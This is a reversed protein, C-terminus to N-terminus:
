PKAAKKVSVRRAFMRKTEGKHQEFWAARWAAAAQCSACLCRYKWTQQTPAAQSM